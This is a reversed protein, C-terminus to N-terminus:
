PGKSATMAVAVVVVWPLLPCNGVVGIAHGVDDLLPVLVFPLKLDDDLATFVFLCEYSFIVIFFWFTMRLPM